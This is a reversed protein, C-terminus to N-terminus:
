YKGNKEFEWMSVFGFDEKPKEPETMELKVTVREKLNQRFMPIYKIPKIVDNM